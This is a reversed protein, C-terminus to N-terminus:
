PTGKERPIKRRRTTRTRAGALGSRRVQEIIREQGDRLASQGSELAGVRGTLARTAQTNARISDLLELLATVFRACPKVIKRRILGACVILAAVAGAIAGAHALTM